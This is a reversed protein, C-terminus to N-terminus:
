IGPTSSLLKRYVYAQAMMTTPITVFLGVFFVLFGAINILILFVGFVFLDWRIGKTIVSSKELSDIIGNQKDVLIFSYFQFKVAWIIGPIVLLLFGAAVILGYLISAGLFRLVLHYFSYLHSFNLPKGDHLDLVIKIIGIQIVISVFVVFLNIILGLLPNIKVFSGVVANLVINILILVAALKLFVSLNSKFFNFGFKIAESKSFKHIKAV